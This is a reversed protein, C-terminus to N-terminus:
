NAVLNHEWIKQILPNEQRELSVTLMCSVTLLEEIVTKEKLIKFEGM